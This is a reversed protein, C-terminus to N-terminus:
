DSAKYTFCLAGNYFFHEPKTLNYVIKRLQLPFASLRNARDNGRAHSDFSRNFVAM